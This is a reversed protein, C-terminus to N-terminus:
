PNQLSYVYAAAPDMAAYCFGACGHFFKFFAIDDADATHDTGAADALVAAGAVLLETHIKRSEGVVSFVFNEAAYGISSIRVANDHALSEHEANGVLQIKGACRRQQACANGSIRREAMPVHAFSLLDADDAKAAKTVHAHLKGFSEARMHHQKARRWLLNGVGLSQPNVFDDNGCVNVFHELMGAAEVENEVGSGGLM